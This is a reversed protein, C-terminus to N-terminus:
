FITVVLLSRTTVIVTIAIASDGDITHGEVRYKYHDHEPDYEPQSRVEGNLLLSLLDQFGLEREAMRKRCHGTTKVEGLSVIERIHRIAESSSFLESLHYDESLNTTM